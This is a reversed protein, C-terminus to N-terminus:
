VLDPCDAPAHGNPNSCYHVTIVRERKEALFINLVHEAREVEVRAFDAVAQDKPNHIIEYLIQIRNFLAREITELEEISFAERMHFYDSVPVPDDETPNLGERYFDELGSM